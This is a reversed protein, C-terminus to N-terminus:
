SPDSQFTDVRGTEKSSAMSGSDSALTVSLFFVCRPLQSAPFLCEPFTGGRGRDGRCHGSRMSGWWLGFMRGFARKGWTM